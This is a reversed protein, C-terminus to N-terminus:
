FPHDEGSSDGNGTVQKWPEQTEVGSAIRESLAQSWEVAHLTAERLHDVYELPVEHKQLYAPTIEDPVGCLMPFITKSAGEQGRQEQKKSAGFLISYAWLPLAIDKGLRRMEDHARALVKYQKRMANLADATQTSKMTFVFPKQYDPLLQRIIVQAYLVTESKTSNRKARWQYVMGYSGNSTANSPIGMALLFLLPREIMWHRVVEGNGHVIDIWPMGRKQMAADLEKDKDCATFFGAYYLNDMLAEGTDEDYEQRGESNLKPRQAPLGTAYQLLPYEPTPTTAEDGLIVDAGGFPVYIENNTASVINAM